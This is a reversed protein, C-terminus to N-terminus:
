FCFGVVSTTSIIGFQFQTTFDASWVRALKPKRRFTFYSQHCYRTSNIMWALCHSRGQGWHQRLGLSIGQGPVDPWHEPWHDDHQVWGSRLADEGEDLPAWAGDRVRPLQLDPDRAEGAPAPDSIDTLWDTHQYLKGNSKVSIISIVTGTDGGQRM